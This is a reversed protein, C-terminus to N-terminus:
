PQVTVGATPVRDQEDSPPEMFIRESRLLKGSGPRVPKLDVLLEKKRDWTLRARDSDPEGKFCLQVYLPEYYTLSKNVAVLRGEREVLVDLRVGSSQATGANTTNPIYKQFKLERPRGSGRVYAHKHQANEGERWGVEGVYWKGTMWFPCAPDVDLEIKWELEGAVSERAWYPIQPNMESAKPMYSFVLRTTDVTAQVIEGKWARLDTEAEIGEAAGAAQDDRLGIEFRAGTDERIWTGLINKTELHDLSPEGPAPWSIEVVEQSAARSVVHPRDFSSWILFAFSAILVAYKRATGSQVAGGLDWLRDFGPM